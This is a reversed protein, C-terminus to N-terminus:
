VPIQIEAIQFLEERTQPTFRENEAQWLFSGNHKGFPKVLGKEKLRAITAGSSKDNVPLVRNESQMIRKLLSAENISLGRIEELTLKNM